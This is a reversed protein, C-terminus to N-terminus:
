FKEREKANQWVWDGRKRAASIVRYFFERYVGDNRLRLPPVQETLDHSIAFLSGRSRSAVM